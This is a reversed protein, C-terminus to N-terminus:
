AAGRMDRLGRARQYLLEAETSLQHGVLTVSWAAGMSAIVDHRASTMPVVDHMLERLQRSQWSIAARADTMLIQAANNAREIATAADVGCSIAAAAM